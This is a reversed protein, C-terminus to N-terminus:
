VRYASQYRRSCRVPQVDKVSSDLYRKMSANNTPPSTRSLEDLNAIYMKSPSSSEEHTQRGHRNVEVTSDSTTQCQSKYTTFCTRVTCWPLSTLTALAAFTDRDPYANKAFHHILRGRQKAGIVNRKGKPLDPM